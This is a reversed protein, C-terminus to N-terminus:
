ECRRATSRYMPGEREVSQTGGRAYIQLLEAKICPEGSRQM